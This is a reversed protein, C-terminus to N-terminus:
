LGGVRHAAALASAHGPGNDKVAIAHAEKAAGLAESFRNAKEHEDVTAPAAGRAVVAFTTFFVLFFARM